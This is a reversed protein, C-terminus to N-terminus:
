RRDGTESGRSRRTTAATRSSIVWRPGLSRGVAAAYFPEPFATRGDVLRSVFVFLGAYILAGNRPVSLGKMPTRVRRDFCSM